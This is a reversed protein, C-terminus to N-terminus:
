DRYFVIGHLPHLPFSLTFGLGWRDAILAM